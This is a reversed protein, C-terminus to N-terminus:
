APPYPPSPPTAFVILNDDPDSVQALTSYTGQLSAGVVIGVSALRKREVEVDDVVLSLAGRGALSDDSSLQLGGNDNLEWQVLTDMPRFNPRRGLLRSWWDESRTLDTALLATYIKHPTM